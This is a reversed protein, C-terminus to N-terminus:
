PVTGWVVFQTVAFFYRGLEAAAEIAGFWDAAERTTVVDAALANQARSKLFNLWERGGTGDDSDVIPEVAIDALGADRFLPVLSRGMWGDVHRDNGFHLIRRTLERAGPFVIPTEWDMEVCTVRGGPRVVRRMEAVVEQPQDVHLLVWHCFARDFVGDAFPLARADGVKCDVVDLVDAGAAARRAVDLLLESPDLAVVKGPAVRGAIDTTILGTGAGVDIVKMGPRLELLDIIRRRALREAPCRGLEELKHIMEAAEEPSTIQSWRDERPSASM